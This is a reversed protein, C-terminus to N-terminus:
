FQGTQLTLYKRGRQASQCQREGPQSSARLLRRFPLTTAHFTRVNKSMHSLLVSFTLVSVPRTGPVHFLTLSVPLLLRQFLITKHLLKKDRYLAWPIPLHRQLRVRPKSLPPKTLILKLQKVNGIKEMIYQMAFNGLKLDNTEYCHPCLLPSQALRLSPLRGPQKTLLQKSPRLGM